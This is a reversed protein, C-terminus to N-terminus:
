ETLLVDILQQQARGYREVSEGLYATLLQFTEPDERIEDGHSDLM